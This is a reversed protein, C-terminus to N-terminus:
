KRTYTLCKMMWHEGYEILQEPKIGYESCKTVFGEAYKDLAKKKRLKLKKKEQEDIRIPREPGVNIDAGYFGGADKSFRRPTLMTYDGAILERRKRGELHNKRAESLVRDEYTVPAGSVPLDSVHWGTQGAVDGHRQYARKRM